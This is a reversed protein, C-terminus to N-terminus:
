QLGSFTGPPQPEWIELCKACSTPWNTLTVYGGHKGGLFYEQYENKYPSIQVWAM